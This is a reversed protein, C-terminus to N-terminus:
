PYPNTATSTMGPDDSRARQWCELRWDHGEVCLAAVYGPAPILHQVRWRSSEQRDQGAMVQATPEGPLLSIEVQDLPMSLGAGTAKLYAEKRTWAAIFARKRKPKPLTRLATVESPSFFREAVEEDPKGVCWRELDVGLERNRTIAFLALGSSHSTNFHLLDGGSHVALAPKGFPGHHFQLLHPEIALYSGLIVRLLGRRVIFRERDLSFHFREARAQEDAALMRRLGEVGEDPRDLAARWLHVQHSDCRLNEPPLRWAIKPM